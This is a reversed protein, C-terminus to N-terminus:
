VPQGKGEPGGARWNLGFVCWRVTKRGRERHARLTRGSPKSAQVRRASCQFPLRMKGKSADRGTGDRRPEDPEQNTQQDTPKQRTQAVVGRGKERREQGKGLSGLAACVGLRLVVVLVVTATVTVTVGSCTRDDGRRRAGIGTIALDGV